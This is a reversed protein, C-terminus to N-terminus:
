TIARRNRVIAITGIVLLLIVLIIMGWETLTPVPQAEVFSIELYAAFDQPDTFERSAIHQHENLPGESQLRMLMGNNSLKQLNGTVLATVDFSTEWDNGAPLTGPSTVSTDYDGGSLTNWTDSGESFPENLAYCNVDISVGGSTHYSGSLYLTATEIQSAELDMPINFKLLGRARGKSPHYSILIRTKYNFNEDPSLEDIYVDAITPCTVTEALVQYRLLPCLNLIIALIFAKKM